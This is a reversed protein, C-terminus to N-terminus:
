RFLRFRCRHVPGNTLAVSVVAEPVGSGGLILDREQRGIWEGRSPIEFTHDFGEKVVQNFERYANDIRYTRHAAPDVRISQVEIDEHSNNSVRVLLTIQHPMSSEFEDGGTSVGAEIMILDGEACAHVSEGEFGDKSACAATLLVALLVLATKM